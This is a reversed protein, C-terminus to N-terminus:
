SFRTDGGIDEHRKKHCSRCLTVGNSVIFRLEPFDNFSKLHHAVISKGNCKKGCDQCTWFDRAYVKNRWVVYEHSNRIAHNVPTVGGKWNWHNEKSHTEAFVRARKLVKPNNTLSKSIKIRMEEPMKKGLWPKAGYSKHGKKFGGFEDAHQKRYEKKCNECCYQKFKDAKRRQFKTGCNKCVFSEYGQKYHCEKSCFEQTEWRKYSVEKKREFKKGCNKCIKDM